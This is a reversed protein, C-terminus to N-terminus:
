LTDGDKTDGWTVGWAGLMAPNEVVPTGAITSVQTAQDYTVGPMTPNFKPPLPIAHGLGYPNAMTQDEQVQPTM